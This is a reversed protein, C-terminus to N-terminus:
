APLELMKLCAFQVLPPPIPPRIKERPEVWYSDGGEFVISDGEELEFVQTRIGMRLAGRVCFCIYTYNFGDGLTVDHAFIECQNYQYYGAAMGGGMARVFVRSLGAYGLRHREAESQIEDPDSRFRDEELNPQSKLLRQFYREADTHEGFFWRGHDKRIVRQRQDSLLSTDWLRGLYMTFGRAIKEETRTTCGEGKEIKVITKTSVGSREALQRIGWGRLARFARVNRGFVM